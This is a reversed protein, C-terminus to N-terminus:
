LITYITFKPLSVYREIVGPNTGTFIFGLIAGLSHGMYNINSWNYHKIIRSILVLIDPVQYIMGPPFHSSFGHGPLDIALFFYEEQLSPLILPILSDFTAL